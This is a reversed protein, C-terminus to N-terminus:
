LTKSARWVIRVFVMCCESKQKVYIYNVSKETIRLFVHDEGQGM